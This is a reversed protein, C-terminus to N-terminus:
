KGPARYSHRVSGSLRQLLPGDPPAHQLGRDRSIQSRNRLPKEQWGLPPPPCIKKLFAPASTNGLRRGNIFLLASFVYIYINIYIYIYLITLDRLLNALFEILSAERQPRHGPDKTGVAKLEGLNTVVDKDTTLSVSCTPRVQGSSNLVSRRVFFSSFVSLPM